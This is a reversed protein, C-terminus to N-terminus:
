YKGSELQEQMSNKEKAYGSPVEFESLPFSKREIKTAVNVSGSSETQVPFGDLERYWLNLSAKTGIVSSLREAVDDMDRKFADFGGIQKTAWVTQFEKGNRKVIYKTCNYGSISKSEGTSEVKYAAHPSNMETNMAGMKEELKKRQDPPLTALRKALAESVSSRAKGFLTKMEEFTMSTYSKKAPNITYVTEKDIRYISTRGDPDITKLMKPMFYLRTVEKEHGPRISEVYFGQANVSGALVLASALAAFASKGKM